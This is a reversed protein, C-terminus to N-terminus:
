TLVLLRNFSAEAQLRHDIGDNPVSSKESMLTLTL